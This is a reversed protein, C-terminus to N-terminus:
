VAIQGNLAYNQLVFDLFDNCTLTLTIEPFYRKIRTKATEIAEQETDLGSVNVNLCDRDSLDQLISFLLQGDGVAPDFLRIQPTELECSWSNLIQSAVFNALIEPTYHSGTEKRNKM